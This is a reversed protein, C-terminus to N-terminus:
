SRRVRAAVFRQMLALGGFGLLMLSGPEPVCFSYPWPTGGTSKVFVEGEVCLQWPTDSPLFCFRQIVWTGDGVQPDDPDVYWEAEREIDTNVLPSGPAFSTAVKLPDVDANPYEESSTWFSDYKLLGFYGFSDPSPLNGGMPHDWFSANTLNADCTAVTWSDDNSVVVELDYVVYGAAAWVNPDVALDSLGAADATDVEALQVAIDAAALAACCLVSATAFSKLLM